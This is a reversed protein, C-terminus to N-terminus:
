PASALLPGLRALKEEISSAAGVVFEDDGIGFVRAGKRAFVFAIKSREPTAALVVQVAEDGIAPVPLAGPRKALTVMATKAHAVDTSSLAVTRWRAAGKKYFGVAGGGVGPVGVCDKAVYLLGLPLRDTLPLALAAAPIRPEDALKEWVAGALGTLAVESSKALQEPTELENSYTFEVFYSGRVLYAKGTGISGSAVGAIPRPMAPDAPDLEGVLRNTFIAYASDAPFQSILVEVSGGGVGQLYHLMAARSVGFRMYEECGGDLATECLQKLGLKSREGYTKLDGSPALCYGGTLRPFLPSLAPDSLPDGGGACVDVGAHGPALSTPAPPPPAGERRSDNKCSPLGALLLVLAFCRM